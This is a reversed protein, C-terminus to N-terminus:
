RKLPRGAPTKFLIHSAKVQEEQTFMNINDEYYAKLEDEELIVQDMFKEAGIKIYAIKIKEPVRYSEKKENFFSVLEKKDVAVSAKFEEPTFKVFSLKVKENDYRYNDLLVQTSPV